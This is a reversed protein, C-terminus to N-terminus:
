KVLQVRDFPDPVIDAHLGSVVVVEGSQIFSKRSEPIYERVDSYPRCM